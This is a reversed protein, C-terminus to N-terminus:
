LHGLRSHWVHPQVNHVSFVASFSISASKSEELLYLGNFEKGQGITSQDQIFCMNCFFILCCFISKSLQSVSIINFNFSPVCLVNYLVLKETIKVTGIHTVLASKGNPLNVNTNLTSTISTFYTISYIMHDTAGTDIVWDTSSFAERNVTKASFISHELNPKFPLTSLTGSMSNILNAQSQSSTSAVGVVVGFATSSFGDVGINSVNTAHHIERGGTSLYALLQECQSKSIPCQNSSISACESIASQNSSVQNATANAKGKHKYEPPYGHLKYCKEVTHGLMNCHTCLPRERKNNNGKNWNSNSSNGKSNVYMAVTDSQSSFSGRHGISKHSEEQLVLIYIKSISPFPEQM